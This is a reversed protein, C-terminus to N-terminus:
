VIADRGRKLLFVLRDLICAKAQSSLAEYFPRTILDILDHASVVELLCTPMVDHLKCGDLMLLKEGTNLNASENLVYDVTLCLLGPSRLSCAARLRVSANRDTCPEMPPYVAFLFAEAEDDSVALSLSEITTMSVVTDFALQSWAAVYYPNIYFVRSGQTRLAAFNLDSKLDFRNTTKENFPADDNASYGKSSSAKRYLNELLRVKTHDSVNLYHASELNLTPQTSFNVILESLLPELRYRDALELREMLSLPCGRRMYDMCKVLVGESEFDSATELLLKLNDGNVKRQTPYICHLFQVIADYPKNLLLTSKDSELEFHRRFLASWISLYFECVYLVRGNAQIRCNRLADPQGFEVKITWAPSRVVNQLMGESTSEAKRTLSSEQGHRFLCGGDNM